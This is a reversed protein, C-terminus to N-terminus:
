ANTIENVFFLQRSVANQIFNMTEKRCEEETIDYIALLRDVLGDTSAPEALFKWIDAGVKNLAIYDGTKMDMVVMEEGLTNALFRTDNRHLITSSIITTENKM